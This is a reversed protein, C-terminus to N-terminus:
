MLRYYRHTVPNFYCNLQRDYVLEIQDGDGGDTMRPSPLRGGHEHLPSGRTSKPSSLAPPTDSLDTDLSALEGSSSLLAKEASMDFMPSAMRSLSMPEPSWRDTDALQGPTWDAVSSHLTGPLPTGGHQSLRRDM